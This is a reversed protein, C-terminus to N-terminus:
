FSRILKPQYFRQVLNEDYASFMQMYCDGLDGPLITKKMDSLFPHDYIKGAYGKKQHICIKGSWYWVGFYLNNEQMTYYQGFFADYLYSPEPHTNIFERVPGQDDYVKLCTKSEDTEAKLSSSYFSPLHLLDEEQRNFTKNNSGIRHVYFTFRPIPMSLSLNPQVMFFRTIEDFAPLAEGNIVNGPNYDNYGLFMLSVGPRIEYPQLRTEPPIHERAIQTDIEFMFAFQQRINWDIVLQMGDVQRVDQYKPNLSRKQELNM